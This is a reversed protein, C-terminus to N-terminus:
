TQEGSSLTSFPRYLADDGIAMKSIEKQIQWLMADPAIFSLIDLTSQSADEVAFPFYEFSVSASITGGYEYKGMLLNLFTTKGRGNRGCFGLKWDTDIQFSVDSFIDDYSGDYAFTLNSINILPM